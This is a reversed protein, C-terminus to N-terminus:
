KRKPARLYGVRARHVISIAILHLEYGRALVDSLTLEDLGSKRVLAEFSIARREDLFEWVEEVADMSVPPPNMKLHFIEVAAQAAEQNIWAVHPLVSSYWLGGVCARTPEDSDICGVGWVKYHSWQWTHPQGPVRRWILNSFSAYEKQQAMAKGRFLVPADSVPACDVANLIQM